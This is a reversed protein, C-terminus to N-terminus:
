NGSGGAVAPRRLFHRALLAVGSAYLLFYFVGFPVSNDRRFLSVADGWLLFGALLTPIGLFGAWFRVMRTPAAILMMGLAINLLLLTPIGFVMSIVGSFDSAQAHPAIFLLALALSPRSLRVTMPSRRSLPM